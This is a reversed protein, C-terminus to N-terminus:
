KAISELEDKLALVESASHDANVQFTNLDYLGQYAVKLAYEDLSELQRM